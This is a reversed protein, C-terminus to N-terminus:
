RSGNPWPFQQEAMLGLLSRVLHITTQIELANQVVVLAREREACASQRLTAYRSTLIQRFIGLGNLMSAWGLDGFALVASISREQHGCRGALGWGEGTQCPSM